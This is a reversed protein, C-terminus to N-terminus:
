TAYEFFSLSYKESFLAFTCQSLGLWQGERFIGGFNEARLDGRVAGPGVHIGTEDFHLIQGYVNRLLYTGDEQKEPMWLLDASVTMEGKEDPGDITRATGDPALAAWRGKEAGAIVIRGKTKWPSVTQRVSVSQFEKRGCMTCKGKQYDHHIKQLARGCYVRGGCDICRTDCVAGAERCTPAYTAGPALHRHSCDSIRFAANMLITTGSANEGNIVLRYEGPGLSSLRLRQGLERVSAERGTPQMQASCVELLTTQSFLAATLKRLDSQQSRVTGWLELSSGPAFSIGTPDFHVGDWRIQDTNNTVSLKGEYLRTFTHENEANIFLTYEGETLGSFNLRDNLGALDFSNEKPSVGASLQVRGQGDVLNVSVLELPSGDSAVVGELAITEGETLLQPANCGCLSLGDPRLSFTQELVTCPGGDNVARIVLTYSGYKLRDLGMKETLPGIELTKAPTSWEERAVTERNYDLIEVTLSRLESKESIVKGQISRDDQPYYNPLLTLEEVTMPDNKVWVSFEENVVTFSREGTTVALAYEYTGPELQELKLDASLNKLEFEKARPEAEARALTKGDKAVTVAVHTMEEAAVLRGEPRFGEGAKLDKPVSVNELYVGEAAVLLTTRLLTMTEAENAATIEYTYAGQALEEPKLGKALASIDYQRVQPSVSQTKVTEGKEDRISITVDTINGRDSSIVGGIEMSSGLPLVAPLGTGNLTMTAGVPSYGNFGYRKCISPYDKFALDMDVQGPIGDVSGSSSYQWMGCIGDYEGYTDFTGTSWYQALWCEYKACVRDTDIKASLWSQSSYLGVLWGEAAMADLFSLAIQSLEEKEMPGHIEPDELDFYVPYELQKGELWGQLAQAEQYAEGGDQAYSYLYVGVNLGAAKARLYNEEFTDDETQAFGARLIVFSYGQERIKEFDVTKGQWTSLDVGYAMIGNNEGNKGGAYSSDYAAAAQQEPLLLLLFIVALVLSVM